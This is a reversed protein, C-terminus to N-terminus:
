KGTNIRKNLIKIVRDTRKNLKKNIFPIKFTIGELKLIPRLIWINRVM